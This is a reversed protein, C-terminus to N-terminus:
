SHGAPPSATLPLATPFGASDGAVQPPKGAPQNRGLLPPRGRSTSEARSESWPLSLLGLAFGSLISSHFGSGEEGAPETVELLASVM